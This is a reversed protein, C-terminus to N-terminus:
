FSILKIGVSYAHLGPGRRDDFVPTLDYSAFLNVWRYGARVTAAFRYERLGFDGPTKLKQKKDDSRYKVKTHSALRKSATIGGSFYIRNGMNKVPVQFEALLPLELCVLSLKSKQNSDFNLTVPYVKGFENLIISTNNNLRYSQLSLGIGTVLGVTNRSSQLGKSYQIINLKLINSRLLDNALFDQDKTEYASYDPQAFGNIGLEVGAWHGKFKNDWSNYGENVLDQIDILRALRGSPSQVVITSDNEQANAYVAVLLTLVIFIIRKMPKTESKFDGRVNNGHLLLSNLFV